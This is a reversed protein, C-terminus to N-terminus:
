AEDQAGPQPHAPSLIEDLTLGGFLAEREETYNGSGTAFQGLFRMTNAVGMERSLIHIARETLEALPRAPVIM